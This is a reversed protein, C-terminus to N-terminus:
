TACSETFRACRHDFPRGPPRDAPRGLHAPAVALPGGRPRSPTPSAVWIYTPLLPLISSVAPRLVEPPVRGLGLPLESEAHFRGPQAIVPLTYDWVDFDALMRRLGWRTRYREYYHEGRRTLRVYDDALRAPLYSLAPLRYHPEMIGLRNGLGLYAVGDPALVRHVEAIVADADVVHEYIHNFVVVNVSGDPLPLASGDGCLFRVRPGFRHRARELGPLDIDVGTVEAGAEALEDCIYGVSCGVDLVRLGDLHGRGLFHQLVSILKM